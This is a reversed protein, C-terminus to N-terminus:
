RKLFKKGRFIYIIFSYILFLSAVASGYQYFGDIKLLIGLLVITVINVAIKGTKNSDPIIGTKNKIYVGGLFILIDRAILTIAFYDPIMGKIIMIVAATTFFIKDALPDLIKGLDTIQNLKRAMIGDLYDTIVGLAAIILIM